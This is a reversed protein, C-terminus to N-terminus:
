RRPGDPMHAWYIVCGFCMLDGSVIWPESPDDDCYEAITVAREEIDNREFCVLVETGADPLEDSAAIWEIPEKILRTKSKAMM